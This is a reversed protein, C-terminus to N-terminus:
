YLLPNASKVLAFRVRCVEHGCGVCISNHLIKKKEDNNSTESDACTECVCEAYKGHRPSSMRRRRCCAGSRVHPPLLQHMCLQIRCQVFRWSPENEGFQMDVSIFSHMVSTSIPQQQRLLVHSRLASHVSLSISITQRM